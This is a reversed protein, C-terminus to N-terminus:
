GLESREREVPLEKVERSAPLEHVVSSTYAMLGEGTDLEPKVFREGELAASRERQVRRRRGLLLGATLVVCCGVLSVGVGISAKAGTSLEHRSATANSASVKPAATEVPANGFRQTLATTSPHPFFLDVAATGSRTEAGLTKYYSQVDTPLATFWTPTGTDFESAIEAAASTPNSLMVSLLSPPLM